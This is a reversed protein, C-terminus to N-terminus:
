SWKRDWSFSEDSPNKFTAYIYGKSVKIYWLWTREMVTSSFFLSPMQFNRKTTLKHTFTYKQYVKQLKSTIELSLNTNYYNYILKTIVLVRLYFTNDINYIILGKCSGWFGTRFWNRSTGEHLFAAMLWLDWPHYGHQLFYRPNSAMQLPSEPAPFKFVEAEGVTFPSGTLWLAFDLFQCLSRRPHTWDKITWQTWFFYFDIRMFDPLDSLYATELSLHFVRYLM